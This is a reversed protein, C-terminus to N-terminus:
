RLVLPVHRHRQVIHMRPWQKRLKDYDFQIDYFAKKTGVLQCSVNATRNGILGDFIEPQHDQWHDPAITQMAAPFGAPIEGSPLAPRGYAIVHGLRLADRVDRQLTM